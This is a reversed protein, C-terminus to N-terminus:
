QRKFVHGLTDHAPVLWDDNFPNNEVIPLLDSFKHIGHSTRCGYDEGFPAAVFLNFFRELESLCNVIPMENNGFCVLHSDKSVNTFPFTFLATGLNIKDSENVAYLKVGDLMYGDKVTRIKVIAILKPFGIVHRTARGNSEYQIPWEMKDIIFALKHRDKTNTVQHIITGRPLLIMDDPYESMIGTSKGLMAVIDEYTAYKPGSKVGGDNITNIEFPFNPNRPADSISFEVKM